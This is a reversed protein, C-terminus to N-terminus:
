KRKGRRDLTIRLITDVVVIAIVVVITVAITVVIVRRCSIVCVDYRNIDIYKYVVVCTSIRVCVLPTLYVYSVRYKRRSNKEM